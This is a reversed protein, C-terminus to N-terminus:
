QTPTWDFNKSITKFLQENYNRFHEKLLNLTSKQLKLKEEEKQVPGCRFGDQKQNTKACYTGRTDNYYVSDTNFYPKVGLFTELEQLQRLPENVFESGDIVYMQDLQFSNLWKQLHILYTSAIVVTNTEDIRTGTKDKLLSDIDNNEFSEPHNTKMQLYQSLTRGVPECLSVILKISSNFKYVRKPVYDKMFYQPTHDIIMRDPGSCPMQQIYWKSGDNFHLDFYNVARETAGRVPANDIDPHSSLFMKLAGTGCKSVGFVIAKPPFKQCTKDLSQQENVMEPLHLVEKRESSNTNAKRNIGRKHFSRSSFTNFIQVTSLIVLNCIIIIVTLPIKKRYRALTHMASTIHTSIRM